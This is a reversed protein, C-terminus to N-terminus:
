HILKKEKPKTGIVIVNGIKIQKVVVIEDCEIIEM